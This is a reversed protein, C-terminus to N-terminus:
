FPLKESPELSQSSNVSAAVNDSTEGDDVNREDLYDAVPVLFCKGLVPFANLSKVVTWGHNAPQNTAIMMDGDAEVILIAEREEIVVHAMKLVFSVLWSNLATGAALYWCNSNVSAHVTFCIPNFTDSDFISQAVENILDCKDGVLFAAFQPIQLVAAVISLLFVEIASWANLVDAVMLVQRQTTLAMPWVMLVLTVNLCAIPNFITFLFYSLQLVVAGLDTPDKMLSQPIATGISIASYSAVNNDDGMALGALGGFEFTFSEQSFGLVLLVTTCVILCILFVKLLLSLRKPPEEGQGNFSHALINETQTDDRMVKNGSVKLHFFLMAHGLGLSLCTVFLFSYFGYVPAVSCDVGLSESIGLHFRFAVVFLILVYSDVLSFKGLANLTILSRERSCQDHCPTFCVYLM